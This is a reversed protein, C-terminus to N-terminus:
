PLPVAWLLAAWEWEWPGSLALGIYEVPPLPVGCLPLPRCGPARSGAWLLCMKIPKWFNLGQLLLTKADPCAVLISM